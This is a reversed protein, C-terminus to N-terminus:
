WSTVKKARKRRPKKALGPSATLVLLCSLLVVASLTKRRSGARDTQIAVSRKM